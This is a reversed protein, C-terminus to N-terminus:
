RGTASKTAAPKLGNFQTIWPTGQKKDKKPEIYDGPGPTEKHQTVRVGLMAGDADIAILRIKGAYGDPAIPKSSADGPLRRKRATRRRHRISAPSLAPAPALEDCGEASRQRLAAAVRRRDAEDKRRSAAAQITPLFPAQSLCRHFVVTFLIVAMICRWRPQPRRSSKTRTM